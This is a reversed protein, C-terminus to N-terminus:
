KVSHPVLVWDGATLRCGTICRNYHRLLAPDAGLTQALEDISVEAETVEYTQFAPIAPDVTQLGPCIVIVREARLPSSLSDNISLIIEANTVYTEELVEFNEGERVRHLLCTHEGVKFPFELVYGGRPTATASPATVPIIEASSSKAGNLSKAAISYSIQLGALVLLLASCSLVLLRLMSQRRARDRARWRAEEAAHKVVPCDAHAERFCYTEQHEVLPVAPPRGHYCYNGLSVYTYSTSPDHRMGLYPCISSSIYTDWNEMINRRITEGFDLAV